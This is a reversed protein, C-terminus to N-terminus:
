HPFYKTYLSVFMVIVTCVQVILNRWMINTVLPERVNKKKKKKSFHFINAM